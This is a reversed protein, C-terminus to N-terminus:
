QHEYGGDQLHNVWENQKSAFAPHFAAGQAALWKARFRDGQRWMIDSSEFLCADRYETARKYAVNMARQYYAVKVRKGWARGAKVAVQISM